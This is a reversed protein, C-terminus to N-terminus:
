ESPWAFDVSSCIRLYPILWLQSSSPPPPTRKCPRGGGGGRVRGQKEKGTELDLFLVMSSLDDGDEPFFDPDRPSWEPPLGRSGLAAVVGRTSDVELSVIAQRSNNRPPPPPKHPPVVNIRRSCEPLPQVSRHQWGPLM